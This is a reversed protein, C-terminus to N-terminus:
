KTIGADVGGLMVQRGFPPVAVNRVSTRVGGFRGSTDGVEHSVTSMDPVYVWVGFLVDSGGRGTPDSDRAAAEAPGIGDIQDVDVPTGIPLNAGGGCVM